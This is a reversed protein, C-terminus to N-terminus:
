VHFSKHFSKYLIQKSINESIDMLNDYISTADSAILYEFAEAIHSFINKDPLSHYTNFSTKMRKYHYGGNLAKILMPCNEKDIQIYGKGNILKNLLIKVPEKRLFQQNSPLSSVDCNFYRGLIDGETEYGIGKKSFGSPDIFIEINEKDIHEKKLYSNILGIMELLNSNSRFIEKFIYWVDNNRYGFITAINTGLDMGLFIRNKQIKDINTTHISPNFGTYIRMGEETQSFEGDRDAIVNSDGFNTYYDDPLNHTNEADKSLGGPQKYLKWKDLKNLVFLNYIWHDSSPPNTDLLLKRQYPINKLEPLPYRGIRRNLAEVIDIHATKAENIYAGTINVSRIKDIDAPVDLARFFITVTCKEGKQNKFNNRWIKETKNYKGDKNMQLWDFVITDELQSATKRVFTWKTDKIGLATLIRIENVIKLLVTTTKGSGLPGMLLQIQNKDDRIFNASVPGLIEYNM